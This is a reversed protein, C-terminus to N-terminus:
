KNCTAQIDVSTESAVTVTYTAMINRGASKEFVIGNQTNRINNLISAGEVITISSTSLNPKLVVGSVNITDGPKLQNVSLSAAQKTMEAGCAVPSIIENGSCAALLLLLIPTALGRPLIHKKDTKKTLEGQSEIINNM